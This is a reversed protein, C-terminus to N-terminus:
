RCSSATSRNNAQWQVPLLFAPSGRWCWIPAPKSCLKEAYFFPLGLIASLFTNSAIQRPNLPDCPCAGPDAPVTLSWVRRVTLRSVSEVGASWSREQM